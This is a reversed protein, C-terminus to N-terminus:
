TSSGDVLTVYYEGVRHSGRQAKLGSAKNTKTCRPWATKENEPHRGTKASSAIRSWHVVRRTM